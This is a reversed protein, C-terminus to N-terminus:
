RISMVAPALQERAIGAIEERLRSIYRILSRVESHLKRDMEAQSGNAGATM